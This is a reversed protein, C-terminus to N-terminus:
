DTIIPLNEMSKKKNWSRLKISMKAYEDQTIVGNELLYDNLYQLYIESALLNASPNHTQM